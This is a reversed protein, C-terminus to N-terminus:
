ADIFTSFIRSLFGFHRQGKADDTCAKATCYDRIRQGFSTMFYKDDVLPRMKRSVAIGFTVWACIHHSM